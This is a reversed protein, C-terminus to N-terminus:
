SARNFRLTRDNTFLYGDAGINFTWGGITTTAASFFLTTITSTNFFGTGTPVAGPPPDWNNPNNFNGDVPVQKWTADQARAPLAAALLASSALLAMRLAACGTRRKILIHENRRFM